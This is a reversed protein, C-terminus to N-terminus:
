HPSFKKRSLELINALENETEAEAAAKKATEDYISIVGSLQNYISIESAYKNNVQRMQNDLVEAKGGTGRWMDKPWTRDYNSVNDYNDYSANNRARRLPDYEANYKEITPMCYAIAQRVTDVGGKSAMIKDIVLKRKDVSDYKTQLHNFLLEGSNQTSSNKDERSFSM